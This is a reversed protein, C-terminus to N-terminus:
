RTPPTSRATATSTPPWTTTPNASASGLAAAFLAQRQRGRQRRRQHRRGRDLEPRLERHDLGHGRRGLRRVPGAPRHRVAGRGPQRKHERLAADPRRHGACRPRLRGDRAGARPPHRQRHGDLETRRSDFRFAYLDTNGAALTNTVTHSSFDEADGLDAQLFATTTTGPQIAVSNGNSRSAVVLLHPETLSYGYRQSGGTNVNQMSVLNGQADYQYNVIQGDPTVISTIRGQADRLFQITQGTASTIGSDSIYLQAGSPTIEGTIEGQADLQYQTGDPGTLTYAPGSFLPNGPNYPQGTALDYYHNGSKSLVTGTSALTYTVGTDAQWAPQYFTQGAVQFSTPAFTYRVRGPTGPAGGTPLTLYLETGDGFANYVGFDEQGTAPLNTQLNTQLNVFTWGYGFDGEGGAGRGSPSPLSGGEGGAGSPSGGDRTLSDYTRQIDITTGGLNVALDTDTVVYDNPKTLTHVEIQTQVQSTRGTIDTATLLLQYFGNTLNSPDLVALPGDNLPSQGSALM